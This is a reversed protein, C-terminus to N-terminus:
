LRSVKEEVTTEFPNCYATSCHMFVVLNKLKEAIKVLEYTGRTNLLISSRLPDDFRYINNTIKLINDM